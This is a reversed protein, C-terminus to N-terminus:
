KFDFFFFYCVAAVYRGTGTFHVVKSGTRDAFDGNPFIHGIRSGTSSSVDGNPSLHGIRSGSKDEVFGKADIMGIRTDTHVDTILGNSAIHAIRREARNLVDGNATIRGLQRGTPDKFSGATIKHLNSLFAAQGEAAAKDRAEMASKQKAMEEKSAYESYLIFAVLPRDVERRFHGFPKGYCTAETRTVKGIPKGDLSLGGGTKSNISLTGIEPFIVDDGKITAMLKGDNRVVEGTEENVTYVIPQGALDGEAFTRVLTFQLAEDDWTAIVKDEDWSTGEYIKNLNSSTTRKTKVRDIGLEEKAVRVNLDANSRKADLDNPADKVTTVAKKLLKGFQANASLTTAFALVFVLGWQMSHNLFFKKMMM